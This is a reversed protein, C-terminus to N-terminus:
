KFLNTAADTGGQPNQDAADMKGCGEFKEQKENQTLSFKEVVAAERSEAFRGQGFITCVPFRTPAIQTLRRRSDKEVCKDVNTNFDEDLLFIREANRCGSQEARGDGNQGITTPFERRAARPLDRAGRVAANRKQGDSL